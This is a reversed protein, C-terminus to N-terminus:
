LKSRVLIQKKYQPNNKLFSDRIYSCSPIVKLDNQVAYELADKALIAATGKGRLSAPTFTKVLDITKNGKEVYELYAVEKEHTLEFRNKEKNHNSPGAIKKPTSQSRNKNMKKNLVDPNQAAPPESGAYASIKSTSTANLMNKGM